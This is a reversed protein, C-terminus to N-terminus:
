DGTVTDKAAKATDEVASVAADAAAGIKSVANDTADGIKKVSDEVADTAVRPPTEVTAAATSGLTRGRRSRFQREADNSVYGIIVILGITAAVTVAPKEKLDARFLDLPNQLWKSKSLPRAIDRDGMDAITDLGEHMYTALNTPTKRDAVIMNGEPMSDPDEPLWETVEDLSTDGPIVSLAAGTGGVDEAFRWARFGGTPGKGQFKNKGPRITDYGPSAKLLTGAPRTTSQVVPDVAPNVYGSPALMGQAVIGSNFFKSM